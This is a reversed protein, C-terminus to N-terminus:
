LRSVPSQIPSCIYALHLFNQVPYALSIRHCTDSEALNTERFFDPFFKSFLIYNYTKERIGVYFTGKM